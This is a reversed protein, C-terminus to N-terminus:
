APVTGAADPIERLIILLAEHGVRQVHVGGSLISADLRVQRTKRVRQPRRAADPRAQLRAVIPPLEAIVAVAEAVSHMREGGVDSPEGPFSPVKQQVVGILKRLPVLRDGHLRFPAVPILPDEGAEPEAIVLRLRVVVEHALLERDAWGRARPPDPAGQALIDAVRASAEM